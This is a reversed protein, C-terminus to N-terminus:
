SFHFIRRLGRSEPNDLKNHKKKRTEEPSKKNSAIAVTMRIEVESWYRIKLKKGGALCM